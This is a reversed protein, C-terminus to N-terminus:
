EFTLVIKAEGNFDYVIAKEKEPIYEAGSCKVAKLGDPHPLRVELIEPLRGKECKIEAIICNTGCKSNLKAEIRFDLHGFYSAVGRIDIINGDKLWARPAGPLIKLAARDELYLMWRTQLLFWAEEHTKHPSAHFYHEWFTYTEKDSMGAFCNYYAKIFAKVDGRKIHVWDHRAYYPQAFGVNRMCMYRSHYDVLFEVVPENIDLVETMVLYLPGNLSDRNVLGGHTIWKGDEFHFALPGHNEPWPAATPCWSGDDLPVVPSKKLNDYFSERITKKFEDTEKRIRSAECHNIAELIEVARAMGLYAYGNLMFSHYPDEPDGVRGDIMGYGRGKYKEQKNKNIWNITFNCAKVLNVSISKAWEKDLTLRYHEGACWLVPGTEVMYNAFNQIFGDDHQKDFFFQIMRKATNHYGMSDMFLIIPASESGIASYIGTTPTISGNPENGYAILEIHCIGAKVMDNIRKEPITFQAAEKLKEKWFDKCQALSKNFDAKSLNDARDGELPSHPILFDYVAKGGPNLLTSFEPKRLIQGNIRSISFVRGSKYRGYGKEEDFNYETEELMGIRHSPVPAIFHAYDPMKSNNVAEIRYYLIVQEEGNVEKEGLSDFLQQQEETFMHGASYGDAAICHTGRLKEKTFDSIEPATFSTINYTINGDEIKARLIPLYGDELWRTVNESCGFGRGTLITFQSDKDLEPPKVGSNHYKPIIYDYVRKEKDVSGRFGIWFTRVDRSLGLWTMCSLDRTAEDASIFSEEKEEDLLQLEKKLGKALIANEIESYSRNDEGTTIIVGYQPIYVPYENSIDGLIFTFPNEFNNITIRAAGETILDINGEAEIILRSDADCLRYSATNDKNKVPGTGDIIKEATIVSDRMTIISLLRGNIIEVTGEAIGKKWVISVEKKTPVENKAKTVMM